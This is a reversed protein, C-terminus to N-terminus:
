VEYVWLYRTNGAGGKGAWFCIYAKYHRGAIGSYTVHSSHYYDDYTLMSPTSEHLFTKVWTWTSGDTSEYLMISLTGIEDMDGTGMVDFWVQVTGTGPNYVYGSYATLYKSAYPQLSDGGAAFVTCPTIITLVFVLAIVRTLIDHRHKTM